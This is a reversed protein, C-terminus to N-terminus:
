DNRHAYVYEAEQRTLGNEILVAIDAEDATMGKDMLEMKRRTGLIAAVTSKPFNAITKRSEDEKSM